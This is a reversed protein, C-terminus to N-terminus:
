LNLGDFQYFGIRLIWHFISSRKGLTDQNLLLCNNSENTKLRNLSRFVFVVGVKGWKWDMTLSRSERSVKEHGM